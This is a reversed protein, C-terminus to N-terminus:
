ELVISQIVVEKIPRDAINKMETEVNEIALAIDMGKVVKGFVTYSPPLPAGPAATVIFFQSGNTNAGSNAMALTGQEYTEKGSLEDNFKYNPGGTGWENKLALNKSKPDGSQIMFGKIVRHFRVGDYFGEKALKKFNAVTVPTQTGFQVQIDGFNTKFTAKTITQTDMPKPKTNIPQNNETDPAKTGLLPNKNIKEGTVVEMKSIDQTIKEIEANTTAISKQIIGFAILIAFTFIVWHTLNNHKQM